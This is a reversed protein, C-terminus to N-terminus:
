NENIFDIVKKKYFGSFVDENTIRLTKFGRLYLFYTDKRKDLGSIQIHYEGDVEIILKKKPIYFDVIRHFPTIFGKQFIFYFGKKTLFERVILEARTPHKKLEDRYKNNRGQIIRVNNNM